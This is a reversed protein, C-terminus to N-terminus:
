LLNILESNDYAFTMMSIYIREPAEEEYGLDPLNTLRDELEKQVYNRFQIVKTKGLEPKYHDKM